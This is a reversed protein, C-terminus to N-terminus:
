PDMLMSSALLLRPNLQHLPPPCLLHAPNQLHPSPLLSVPQAPSWWTSTDETDEGWLVRRMLLRFLWHDNWWCWCWCLFFSESVKVILFLGNSWHSVGMDPSLVLISYMDEVGARRNMKARLADAMERKEKYGSLGREEWLSLEETAMQLVPEWQKEVVYNKPKLPGQCFPLKSNANCGNSFKSKEKEAPDSTTLKELGSAEPLPNTSRVGLFTPIQSRLDSTSFFDWQQRCSPCM